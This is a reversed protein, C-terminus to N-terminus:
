PAYRTFVYDRNKIAQHCPFRTTLMSDDVAKSDNFQGYGLRGDRCIEKCNQALDLHGRQNGRWEM